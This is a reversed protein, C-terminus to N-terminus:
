STQRQELYLFSMVGSTRNRVSAFCNADQGAVFLFLRWV